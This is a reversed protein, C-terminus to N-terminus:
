PACRATEGQDGRVVVVTTACRLVPVNAAQQRTANGVFYAAVVVIAFFVLAMYVAGSEVHRRTHRHKCEVGLRIAHKDGVTEGCADCVEVDYRGRM